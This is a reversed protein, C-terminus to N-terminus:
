VRIMPRRRVVAARVPPAKPLATPTWPSAVQIAVAAIVPPALALVYPASAPWVFLPLLSWLGALLVSSIRFREKRQRNTWKWWPAAAAVLGFYFMYGTGVALVDPGLRAWRGIVLDRSTEAPSHGAPVVWGDLWFALGGVAAGAFLLRLRRGWNNKPEQQGFRSFALIMWGFANALMFIRGILTWQGAAPILAFPATCLAAVVPVLVASSSVDTLRDRVGRSLPSSTIWSRAARPNGAPVPRPMPPPVVPAVPVPGSGPSAAVTPDASRPVPVAEVARAFERMNRFRKEPDKELAKELVPAFGAPLKSLDPKDTLHKMLVEEVEGEFPPHGTLMEFLIVGCAYVDITATYNGNKVEPAMYYPTGIRRTLDGGQSASMRRSLGYDGIKLQGHEVFINAPKLDRHVVGHDHLYAVGRALALFWEKALEAPLGTPYRNIWQALSEGFVYEMVVWRDGRDDTHLDYLHVLQPHKLNLCQVVGRLEADSHRQVLKLAVEKGGDSVAFYVEGFGGQGVGRKITYGALPRQGSRYTFKMAPM